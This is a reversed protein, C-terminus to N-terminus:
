VLEVGGDMSFVTGTVKSSSDSLFYICALAIDDPQGIDLPYKKRSEQFWSPDETILTTEVLGPCLANVRVKRKSLELALPRLTGILAAKSGSYPGVGVTGSLAAISSLFIISGRSNIKQRFLLERTLMTPAFYNIDFVEHLFKSSVMKMPALGRIGACHVVGDLPPVDNALQQISDYNTLDCVKQVHHDGELSNLTNLLRDADRGSIILKAGAAATYQAVAKGIGLSAGTVLITKGKLGFLNKVKIQVDQEILM